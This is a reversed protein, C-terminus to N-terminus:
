ANGCNVQHLVQMREGEDLVGSFPTVQRLDVYKEDESTCAFVIDDLPGELLREWETVWTRGLDGVVNNRLNSLNSRGVALVHEPERTLHKVVQRHLELHLRHKKLM